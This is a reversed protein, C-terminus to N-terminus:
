ARSSDPKKETGGIGDDGGDDAEEKRAQDHEQDVEVDVGEGAVVHLANFLM